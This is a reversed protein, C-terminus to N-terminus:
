KDNRVNSETQFPESEGQRLILLRNEDRFAFREEASGPWQVTVGLPETGAPLGFHLRTGFHSQYSRGALLEAVQEGASTELRVRAGVADRNARIGVLQLDIWRGPRSDNRLITPRSNAELIVVDIDGDNDLDDFAAGRSSQIVKLGSGAQSSVNRFRGSGDNELLYNSVRVQTRDDIYQINDMFHGCAIFADRDGDNDFDVLGLGWNVHPFLSSDIRATNTADDFFGGETGRYLVPLEDQYTTTLLDLIGDGNLDAADVGMNGNPKGARDYCLGYQVGQESFHGAGDNVFLFNPRTDNVVLIDADGDSDFDFAICGMSTGAVADIGSSTSIDTFTGDGNNRFLSDSDPPYDLPGPHFQHPGIMRVIHQDFDFRQYNGCYLDLDGDNEIDLFVTGAGFRDGDGVGTEVTGDRFTGDGNNIYLVNPGFNTIYLDIAGDNNFDGAVVGLAYGTDGVGAAATADSFTWDGLNRYLANRAPTERQTGPLAAGNLFYIDLYGDGDYDLLALGGSYAEVVYHEGSAGDTHVFDIGTQDLVNTFQMKTVQAPLRAVFLCMVLILGRATTKARNLISCTLLCGAAIKVINGEIWLGV